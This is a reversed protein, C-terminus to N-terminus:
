PRELVRVQHELKTVRRDLDSVRDSLIITVALVLGLIVLICLAIMGDNM